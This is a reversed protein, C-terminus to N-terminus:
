TQRIETLNSANMKKTPYRPIEDGIDKGEGRTAPVRLQPLIPNKFDTQEM